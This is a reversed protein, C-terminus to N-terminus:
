AYMYVSNRMSPEIASLATYHHHSFMHFFISKQTISTMCIRSRCSLLECAGTTVACNSCVCECKNRSNFPVLSQQMYVEHWNGNLSMVSAELLIIAVCDRSVWYYYNEQLLLWIYSAKQTLLNKFIWTIKIGKAHIFSYLTAYEDM